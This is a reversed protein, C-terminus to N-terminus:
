LGMEEIEEQTYHWYRTLEFWFVAPGYQGFERYRREVYKAVEKESLHFMTACRRVVWSDMHYSNTKGYLRSVYAVSMPGMGSVTGIENCFEEAPMGKWADGLYIEPRDLAIDSLSLIFKARFGCNISKRLSEVDERSIREPTPFARIPKGEHKAGTSAGYKRVSADAMQVSRKWQINITLIAKFCDEFLSPSRLFRGKKEDIIWQWAADRSAIERLPKLDEDLSLCNSAIELADKEDGSLAELEVSRGSTGIRIAGKRKPLNYPIIISPPTETGITPALWFYGHSMIVARFEKPTIPLRMM